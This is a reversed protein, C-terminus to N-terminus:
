WGFSIKPLKVSSLAEGISKGVHQVDKYVHKVTDVGQAVAKGVKKSVDKGVKSAKDYADYSWNKANDYANPWIFQALKNAGGVIGGVIAGPPGAVAAGITIGELPGVSKVTDIAGGIVGKGISGTKGYENVGSSVFTVGLQAYTAVQAVTGIGKAVGLNKAGQVFKSNKLGESVYTKIPNTLKNFWEYGKGITDIKPIWKGKAVAQGFSEYKALGNILKTQYKPPLKDALMWFEDNKMLKDVLAKPYLALLQDLRKMNDTKGSTLPDMLEKVNKYLDLFANSSYADIEAKANPKIQTFWSKDIGSPLSYSGDANVTTNNLVMVGQMAIKLENLSNQFLSSTKGNFERLMRLKKEVDKINSQMTESQRTLNRQIGLFTDIMDAVPHNRSMSQVFDRTSDISHKMSQLTQIEKILKDEDLKGEGSVFSDATKYTQLEQEVKELANTTRTITPIILESFLGKGATYAEGALQHGDVASVVRQSGTKLQNMAEKGANLNTKLDSMFKSSESSVYVLRM